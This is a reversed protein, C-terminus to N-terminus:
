KNEQFTTNAMERLVELTALCDGLATHDGGPLSQWRYSKWYDSWDGVYQAYLLMVCEVVEIGIDPCHFRRFASKLIPWDFNKNYILVTKRRIIQFLQPYLDGITPADTLKDPHIGHIDFASLGNTRDFVREPYEPKVYTNLLTQGTHDIIALEIIEGDLGTTETDLIVFGDELLQKADAIVDDQEECWSCLEKSGYKAIREAARKATLTEINRGCRYCDIEILKAQEQAKKLAAKQADTVPKKLVGESRDYLWMKGGPSKARFVVGAPLPLQKGTNFGAENMQAKTLLNEPWEGWGYVMVGPCESDPQQKWTRGCVTCRLRKSELVEISHEKM